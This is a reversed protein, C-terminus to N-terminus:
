GGWGKEPAFLGTFCLRSSRACYLIVNCGLGFCLHSSHHATACWCHLIRLFSVQAPALILCWGLNKSMYIQAPPIDYVMSANEKAHWFLQIAQFVISRELRNMQKTFSLIVIIAINIVRRHQRSIFVARLHDRGGEQAPCSNWRTIIDCWAVIAGVPYPLPEWEM